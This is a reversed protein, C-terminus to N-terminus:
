KRSIRYTIWYVLTCYVPVIVIFEVINIVTFNRINSVEGYELLYRLGMGAVTFVLCLLLVWNSKNKEFLPTFCIGITGYSLIVLYLKQFDLPFLDNYFPFSFCGNFAIYGLLVAFVINKHKSLKKRLEDM